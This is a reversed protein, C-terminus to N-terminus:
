RREQGATGTKWFASGPEIREWLELELQAVKDTPVLPDNALVERLSSRSPHRVADLFLREHIEFRELWCQAAVSIAPTANQYAALLDGGSRDRVSQDLMELLTFRYAFESVEVGKRLQELQALYLCCISELDPVVVRIVGGPMLVRYQEAIFPNAEAASLHELVHSSYTADCTDAALPLGRRLDCAVALAHQPALDLNLWDAHAVKGCGINVLKTM